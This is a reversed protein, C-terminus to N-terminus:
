KCMCTYKPNCKLTQIYCQRLQFSQSSQDQNYDILEIGMGDQEEAHQSGTAGEVGGDDGKPPSFTVDRKNRCYQQGNIEIIFSDPVGVM